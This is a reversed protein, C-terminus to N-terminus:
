LVTCVKSPALDKMSHKHGVWRTTVRQFQKLMQLNDTKKKTL